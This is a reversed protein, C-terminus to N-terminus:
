AEVGGTEDNERTDGLANDLMEEYYANCKNRVAKESSEASFQILVEPPAEPLLNMRRASQYAAIFRRDKKTLSAERGSAIQNNIHLARKEIRIIFRGLRSHSMHLYDMSLDPAFYNETDDPLRKHQLRKHIIDNALDLLTAFLPVAIIMGVIGFLAGMTCIAIIVCLPGVGTNYGVIRPSIINSDIQYIVFMILIFPILLPADTFLLLIAAPIFGILFGVTPIM